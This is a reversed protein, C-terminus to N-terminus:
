GCTLGSKSRWVLKLRGGATLEWRANECGHRNRAYYNARLFIDGAPDVTLTDISGLRPRGAVLGLRGRAVLIKLAFATVRVVADNHSAIVEGDALKRVVDAQSFADRYGRYSGDTRVVLLEPWHAYKTGGAGSGCVYVTFGAGAIGSQGCDVRAPAPLKAPTSACAVGAGAAFALVLTVGLMRIRTM